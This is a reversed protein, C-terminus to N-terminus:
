SDGKNGAHQVIDMKLQDTTMYVNRWIPQLLWKDSDMRNGADLIDGFRLKGGTVELFLIAWNGPSGPLPLVACIKQM